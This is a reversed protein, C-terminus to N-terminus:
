AKHRPFLVWEETQLEGGEGGALLDDPDVHEGAGVPFYHAWGAIGAARPPGMAGALGGRAETPPIWPALRIHTAFPCSPM